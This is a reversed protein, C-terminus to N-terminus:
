FANAVIVLDLINVIGDDNLDPTAEGLANAVIVLDLINVTGDANLDANVGSESKLYIEGDLDALTHQIGVRGSSWGSVSQPLEIKQSESSRNYVAWGKTFERIFLGERNEYRQGKEGIPRGLDAEWFDYWYHKNGYGGDMNYVVYGNAFIM